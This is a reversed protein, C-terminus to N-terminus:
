RELEFFFDPVVHGLNQDIARDYVWKGVAVDLVGLGFPSFIRTRALDVPCRGDLVEALSGAVFSRTGLEKEALQLSTGASLAHDVDDVVNFADRVMRPSLDRLSLHLVVPHHALLGPDDVHPTAAVTAFLTVDCTGLVSALDPAVEVKCRAQDCWRSAFREAMAPDTDYLLIRGLDWGTGALFQYVYRAIL